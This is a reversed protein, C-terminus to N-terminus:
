TASSSRACRALTPMHDPVKSIGHSQRRCFCCRHLRLLFGRGLFHQRAKDLPHGEVVGLVAEANEADLRASMAVQDRDDAVGGDDGGSFPDGCRAVPDVIVGMALLELRAEHAGRRRRRDVADLLVQARPHDAADPRDIGLLHDLREALLHEIDDLGLGIPQSLHGADAGDTGLADGIGPGFLLDHPLDHDEQVAMADARGPGHADELGIARIGDLDHGFVGIAQRAVDAADAELGGVGDGHLEADLLRRHDPDAGPDGIGQGLGHLSPWQPRGVSCSTGSATSSSSTGFSSTRVASSSSSLSPVTMASVTPSVAQM